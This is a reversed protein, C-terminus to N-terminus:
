TLLCSTKMDTPFANTPPLLPPLLELCSGPEKLGWGPAKSSCFRSSVTWGGYLRHWRVRLKCVGAQSWLVGAKVYVHHEQAAVLPLSQHYVSWWGRHFCGLPYMTSGTMTFCIKRRRDMSQQVLWRMVPSQEASWCLSSFFPAISLLISHLIPCCVLHRFPPTLADVSAAERDTAPGISSKTRAADPNNKYFLASFIFQHFSTVFGVRRM